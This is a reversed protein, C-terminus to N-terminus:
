VGGLHHKANNVTECPRVAWEIGVRWARGCIRSDVLKVRSELLVPNALVESGPLQDTNIRFQQVTLHNLGGQIEQRLGEQFASLVLEKACVFV